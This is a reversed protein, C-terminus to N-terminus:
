EWVPKRKEFFATIGEKADPGQLCAALESKLYPLAEDFSMQALARSAALGQRMASPALAALESALTDVRLSLDTEAAVLEGVLGQQYAEAAGLKQGRMIFDLGNRHSMVRFLGAMVQFPWLGRHIEPASFFVDQCAIVHSVNCIFLLGGALVPGQVRAVVPKDLTYLAMVMDDSEGLQPVSSRVVAGAEGKMGKLDGGACFVPGNAALVVVRVDKEAKAYRFAYILENVMTQNMANRKDPRNLTITLVYSSLSLDLAEFTQGDFDCLGGRM